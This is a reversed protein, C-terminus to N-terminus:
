REKKQLLGLNTLVPIIGIFLLINAIISTIQPLRTITYALYDTSSSYYFWLAFTSLGFTCVVASAFAGIIARVCYDAFTQLKNFRVYRFILGFILANLGNSLLLLPNPAGGTPILWQGTLDSICAVAAGIYPGLIAASIYWGLYALSLKLFTPLTQSLTNSILKLVISIAVMTAIYVVTRTHNKRCTNPTAIEQQNNNSM